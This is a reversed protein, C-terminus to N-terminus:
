ALRHVLPYLEYASFAVAPGVVLGFLAARVISRQRQVSCIAGAVCAIAILQPLVLGLMAIDNTSDGFHQREGVLYLALVSVFASPTAAM